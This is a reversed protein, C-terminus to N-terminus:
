AACSLMCFPMSASTFTPPSAPPLAPPPPLLLFPFFPFFIVSMLVEFRRVAHSCVRHRPSHTRKPRIITLATRACGAQQESRAFLSSSCSLWYIFFCRIRRWELVQRQEFVVNRVCIWGAAITLGSRIVVVRRIREEPLQIDKRGM